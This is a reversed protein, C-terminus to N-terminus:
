GCKPLECGGPLDVLAGNRPAAHYLTDHARREPPIRPEESLLAVHAPHAYSLGYGRAFLAGRVKGTADEFRVPMATAPWSFSLRGSFDYPVSGDAARFLLDAIGAGKAAPCGPPSSPM